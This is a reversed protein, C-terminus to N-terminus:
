LQNIASKGHHAGFVIVPKGSRAALEQLRIENLRDAGVKSDMLIPARELKNLQARGKVTQQLVSRSRRSIWQYSEVGWDHCRMARTLQLFKGAWAAHSLVSNCVYRAIYNLVVVRSGAACVCDPLCDSGCEQEELCSVNDRKHASVLGPAVNSGDSGVSSADDADENLLTMLSYRLYVVRCHHNQVGFM